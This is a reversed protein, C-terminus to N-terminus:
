VAQTVAEDLKSLVYQVEDDNGNAFATNLAIAATHVLRPLDPKICKHLHARREHLMIKLKKIGDKIAQTDKLFKAVYWDLFKTDMTKQTTTTSDANQAFAQSKQGFHQNM